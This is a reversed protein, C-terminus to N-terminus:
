AHRGVAGSQAGCTQQENSTAVDLLAHEVVRCLRHANGMVVIPNREPLIANLVRTLWTPWAHPLWVVAVDARVASRQRLAQTRASKQRGRDMWRSRWYRYAKIEITASKGAYRVLLDIDGIKTM